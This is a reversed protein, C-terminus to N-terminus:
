RRGAALAAAVEAAVNRSGRAEQADAVDPITALEAEVPEPRPTADRPKESGAGSRCTRCWPQNRIAGDAMKRLGFQGLPRMKHCKLCMLTIFVENGDADYVSSRRRKPKAAAPAARKPKPGAKELEGKAIAPAVMVKVAM